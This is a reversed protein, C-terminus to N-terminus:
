MQPAVKRLRMIYQRDTFSNLLGCTARRFLAVKRGASPVADIKELRLGTETMMSVATDRVFFRLHTRDLIGADQLEWKNQFVLPLLVEFNRINPLSAVIIGNPELMDHLRRVVAWPDVLHELVDLCLITSFPGQEHAVQQLLDAGELDGSYFFDVRNEEPPRIVDIVGARVVLGLEKIKAATAGRGGGVDLLTGGQQTVLPLANNRPRDPYPDHAETVINLSRSLTIWSLLM